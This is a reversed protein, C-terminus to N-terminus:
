RLGFKLMGIFCSYGLPNLFSTKNRYQKHDNKNTRTKKELWKKSNSIHMASEYVNDCVAESSSTLPINVSIYLCFFARPTTM